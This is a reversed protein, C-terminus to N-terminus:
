LRNKQSDKESAVRRVQFYFLDLIGIYTFIVDRYGYQVIGAITQRREIAQIPPFGSREIHIPAFRRAIDGNLLPSEPVCERLELHRM